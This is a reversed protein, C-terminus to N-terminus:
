FNYARPEASFARWLERGKRTLGGAENGGLVRTHIMMSISENGLLHEMNSRRELLGKKEGNLGKTPPATWLIDWQEWEWPPPSNSNDNLDKKNKKATHQANHSRLEGVASQVQVRLLSLAAQWGSSWWPIWTVWTKKPEELSFSWESLIILSYHFNYWPNWLRSVPFFSYCCM